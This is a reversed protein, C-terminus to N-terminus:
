CIVVFQVCQTIGAHYYYVTVRDKQAYRGVILSSIVRCSCFWVFFSFILYYSVICMQKEQLAEKEKRLMELERQRMQSVRRLGEHHM